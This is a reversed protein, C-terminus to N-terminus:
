GCRRPRAKAKLFEQYSASFFHHRCDPALVYYLADTDAPQLAARISSARPSSIPTPPLAPIRYTNHPSDVELDALTLTQGGYKKLAYQVTADIELRMKKRLRNHIVASIIAREEDVKAEEEVLSAIVLADYPSLGGAAARDRPFLQSTEKEFQRVMRRVLDTASEREIVNYTEPYLFGELNAVGPPLIEPRVTSPTAAALFDEGSVHTREEVRVATQELTLGEPITLKAFSVEPGKRLAALVEEFPMDRRLEYEGAKLDGGVDKTRLFLRFIEGSRVVQRAELMRVIESGSTGPTVVVKVPRGEPRGRAASRYMGLAALGAGAVGVSAVVLFSFIFRRVGSM